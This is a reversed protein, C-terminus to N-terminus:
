GVAAQDVANDEAPAREGAEGIDRIMREVDAEGLAPDVTVLRIVRRGHVIGFGVKLVGSDNLDDCIAASSKGTVEFCVNIWAPDFSLTMRGDARVLDAAARALEMQREVRKAYGDDGLAQWQAWLKLADNRRGCQLSRTGPNLWGHEGGFDQQFLYSASEDFHKRTMGAKRTLVVSCILPVGMMKHADWTLSDAREIGAMLGRHEPHMLATGGFAGDVHLWLDERGAIDALADIPDFAGMVTTGSTAVVMLPSEGAARDRAIAASLAEPIMRGGTDAEVPRVGTRGIGIMNANKTLSYHSEASVYVTRGRGDFGGERVDGVVENRGIIMGALNSLSGGPTFMGDGGTMGAKALMRELVVREVLVQPGAAKYTYMSNNLVATLMEAATAVRERGAFLQNVFRTGGTTPTALAVRRLRELAEEDGVGAESLELPLARLAQEVDLPVIPDGAGDREIIADIVRAM